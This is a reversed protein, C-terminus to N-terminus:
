GIKRPWRRRWRSGRWTAQHCQHPRRLTELDRDDVAASLFHKLGLDTVRRHAEILPHDLSQTFDSAVRFVIDGDLQVITLIDAEGFAAEVQLNM